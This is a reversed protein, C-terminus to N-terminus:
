GHSGGISPESQPWPHDPYHIKVLTLGAAPATHGADSRRGSAVARKVSEASQRAHAVDVLTGVIIRVMNKLFATGEVEIEVLTGTARIEIRQICRVTTPSACDGARFASFDHTGILHAAAARMADFDLAPGVQWSTRADFPNVFRHNWIRYCYIKGRATHRAHFSDDVESARTVLLDDDTLANLGRVFDWVTRASEHRFHAVQGLAHVGADTRSAGQVKIPEDTHIIRMVARMLEGEVTRANPQIQWGHYNTGDYAIHLRILPM